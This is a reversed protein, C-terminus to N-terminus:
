QYLPFLDEEEVLNQLSKMFWATDYGKDIEDVYVKVAEYKEHNPNQALWQRTAKMFQFPGLKQVRPVEYSHSVVDEPWSVNYGKANPPGFDVHISM